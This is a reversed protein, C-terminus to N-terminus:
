KSRFFLGSRPMKLEVRGPSEVVAVGKSRILEFADEAARTDVPRDKMKGRYITLSLFENPITIQLQRHKPDAFASSNITIPDTRLAVNQVDEYKLRYAAVYRETQPDYLALILHTDTLIITCSQFFDLPVAPTWAETKSYACRNHLLITGEPIALEQAIKARDTEPNYPDTVFRASAPFVSGALLFILFLRRLYSM